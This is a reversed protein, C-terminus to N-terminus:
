DMRRSKPTIIRVIETSGNDMVMGHDMMLFYSCVKGDVDEV